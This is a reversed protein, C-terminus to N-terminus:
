DSQGRASQESDSVEWIAGSTWHNETGPANENNKPNTHRVVYMIISIRFFLSLPFFAHLFPNKSFPLAVQDLPLSFAVDSEKVICQLREGWQDLVFM